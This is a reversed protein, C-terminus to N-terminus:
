PYIRLLPQTLNPAQSWAIPRGFYGARKSEGKVGRTKISAPDIGLAECMEENVFFELNESEEVPMDAPTAEGRLIKAAM